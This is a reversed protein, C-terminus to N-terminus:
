FPQFAVRFRVALLDVSPLIQNQQAFPCIAIIDKWSPPIVVSGHLWLDNNTIVGPGGLARQFWMYGDPSDYTSDAIDVLLNMGDASPILDDWLTGLSFTLVGPAAPFRWGGTWETDTTVDSALYSTKTGEYDGGDHFNGGNYTQFGDTILPADSLVATSEGNSVPMTGDWAFDIKLGAAPGVDPGPGYGLRSWVSVGDGTKYRGTDTEFGAQGAALILSSASWEAGTGRLNVGDSFIPM